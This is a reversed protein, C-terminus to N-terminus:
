QKEVAAAVSFSTMEHVRCSFMFLAIAAIDDGVTSRESTVCSNLIQEKKELLLKNRPGVISVIVLSQVTASIVQM